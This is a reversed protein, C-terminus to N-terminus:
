KVRAGDPLPSLPTVVALQDGASGALLMGESLIGRIRAPKLNAVLVVQRGVLDEPRYHARIGSVITRHREGDHVTLKLLRDAGEVVEAAEVTAVRLDLRHVDEIGIESTAAPDAMQKAEKGPTGGAPAAARTEEIRPFLVKGRRTRTGPALLGFRAEALSGAPEPIGLQERMAGPAELLFPTLLVSVVRLGDALGYLVTELRGQEGARALTWPSEDEIAKNLVRVLGWVAALADSLALREMAEQYRAVTEAVVGPLGLRDAEPHYPPIVGGAFRELMVLTRNLLNGLDNALDVNIRLILAEETYSGDSGFPVERLLFYRVADVGYRDLLALPDVVNGRSKSMKTNDILLWGHGFVQRPLPLGLAMLMVPWIVTHFRVIEKGVLHLDAPWTRAFRAPDDLWGAATIYNLLADFWVYVTHSPDFPVPIGWSVGPRSISLDELGSEIFSLMENRRSPPQIFDPHATIHQYIADRYRTLRFFYSEERVWEVPRGCDPCKGDVLKSERWFTEDPVCYWGEYHGKYIDGQDYLRRFAEQVVRVHREETTRIFDDYSIGLRQWLPDRIAAVIRDVFVQPPVGEAEARRQIKQGHEDTGTVFLVEQGQLRHYRALADAAVTTYAHGIHLKDSPYYIPTTIYWVKGGPAGEPQGAM